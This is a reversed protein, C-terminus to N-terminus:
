SFSVDLNFVAMFAASLYFHLGERGTNRPFYVPFYGNLIDNVDMLKEAQDSVMEPPVSDLRYFNFFLIVAVSALVVITWRTIKVSWGQEAMSHISRKLGPMRIGVAPWFALFFFLIALGWILTNLFGFRGNEFFLFALIAFFLSILLFDLRFGASFSSSSPKKLDPLVWERKIIATLICVLAGLYLLVGPWTTRGPSPELTLQAILALVMAAVTLWPFTRNEISKEEEAPQTKTDRNSLWTKLKEACFDWVSPESPPTSTPQIAM